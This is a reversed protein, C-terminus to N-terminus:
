CEPAEEDVNTQRFDPQRRLWLTVGLGVPVTAVVWPWAAGGGRFAEFAAAAGALMGVTFCALLAVVVALNSSPCQSRLKQTM